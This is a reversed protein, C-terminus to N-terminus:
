PILEYLATETKVILKSGRASVAPRAPENLSLAAGREDIAAVVRQEQMRELSSVRFHGDHLYLLETGIVAFAKGMAHFCEWVNQVAFGRLHVLPFDTYYNLWVDGEPTVNMAYCDAIAPLKHTTAFEAFRFVPSGNSDFCIAGEAGVGDGFVGEDFYSM